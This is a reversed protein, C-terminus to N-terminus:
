RASREESMALSQFNVWTAAGEGAARSVADAIAAANAGPDIGSTMQLVAVKTM